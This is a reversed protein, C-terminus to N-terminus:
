SGNIKKSYAKEKIKFGAAKKQQKKDEGDDAIVAPSPEDEV